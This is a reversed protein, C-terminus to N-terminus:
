VSCQLFWPLRSHGDHTRQLECRTCDCTAWGPFLKCPLPKQSPQRPFCAIVSNSQLCAARIEALTVAKRGAFTEFRQLSTEWPLNEIRTVMAVLKFIVKVSLFTEKCGPLPIVHEHHSWYIGALAGTARRDAALGHLVYMQQLLRRSKPLPRQVRLTRANKRRCQKM